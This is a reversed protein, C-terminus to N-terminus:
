WHGDNISALGGWALRQSQPTAMLDNNHTSGLVLTFGGSATYYCADPFVEQVESLVDRIRKDLRNLKARMKPLKEDLLDEADYSGTEAVWEDVEDENM